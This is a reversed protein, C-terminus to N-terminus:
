RHDPWPLREDPLIMALRAMMPKIRKLAIERFAAPMPLPPRTNARETLTGPSAKFRHPDVGIFEFTRRLVADPSQVADELFQILMRDRGFVTLWRELASAYDSRSIVRPDDVFREFQAADADEPSVGTMSRMDKRVHSWLRDLPDRMLFLLKADPVTAHVLRVDSASLTMYCTTYEGRVLNRSLGSKLFFRRYYARVVAPNRPLIRGAGRNLRRDFLHLEKSPPTWIDPHARLNRWLWTTGARHAGMGIFDPLFVGNM